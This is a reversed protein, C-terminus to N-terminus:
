SFLSGKKRGTLLKANRIFEEEEEEHQAFAGVEGRLLLDYGTINM